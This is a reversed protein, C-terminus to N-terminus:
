EVTGLDNSWGHAVLISNLQDALQKRSFPGAPLTQVIEMVEGSVDCMEAQVVLDLARVKAHPDDVFLADVLDQLVGFDASIEQIPYNTPAVHQVYPSAKAPAITKAIRVFEDGDDTQEIDVHADETDDLEFMESYTPESEKPEAEAVNDEAGDKGFLLELDAMINYGPENFHSIQPEDDLSAM